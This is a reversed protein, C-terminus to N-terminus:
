EQWSIIRQQLKQISNNFKFSDPNEKKIKYNKGSLAALTVTQIWSILM